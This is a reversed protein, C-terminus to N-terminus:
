QDPRCKDSIILSTSECHVGIQFRFVPRIGFVQRQQKLRDGDSITSLAGEFSGVSRLNVDPGFELVSGPADM